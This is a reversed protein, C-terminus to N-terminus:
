GKRCKLLTHYLGVQDRDEIVKLGSEAICRMLDSSHYMQSNGNAICTFYLTTQQLCFAAAENPQRDWFLELIYLTSGANMAQAARKLISVIEKESFCDLFQSMWIADHNEPLPKSEDLLDTTFFDIRGALNNKRITERAFELQPSLDAITIKVDADFKACQVAWKGTNGGVDLLRKPKDAFVLPLASPFAADSYYHDFALWSERAKPTLASLGEYFTRWDGLTKLGVPKGQEISKDLDFMGRYCIDHVVDMNVRTMEDRFMFYGLKTITFCNENLCFLGIGLGSEMLVKIGYRPLNIKAVVENLTMGTAGSKQVLELIGSDRLVRCAQFMVPAFAIRQAEAKADFASRTDHKFFNM